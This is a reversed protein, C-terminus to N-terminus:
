RPRSRTLPYSRAHGLERAAGEFAERCAELERAAEDTADQHQVVDVFQAVYDLWLTRVREWEADPMPLVRMKSAVAELRRLLEADDPRRADRRLVSGLEGDLRMIQEAALRDAKPLATYEGPAVFAVWGNRAIDSFMMSGLVFIAASGVLLFPLWALQYAILLALGLPVTWTAIDRYRHGEYRWILGGVLPLLIWVAEGLFGNVVSGVLSISTLSAPVLWQLREPWLLPDLRGVRSSDISIAM